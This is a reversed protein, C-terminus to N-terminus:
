DEKPAIWYSDVWKWEDYDFILFYTNADEGYRVAYVTVVQPKIGCRYIAKFM